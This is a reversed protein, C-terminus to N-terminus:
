AQQLRRHRWGFYTAYTLVPWGLLMAILPWGTMDLVFGLIIVGGLSLANAAIVALRDNLNSPKM